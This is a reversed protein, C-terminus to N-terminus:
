KWVLGHCESKPDLLYPSPKSQDREYEMIEEQWQKRLDKHLTSNVENFAGVQKDREQISILLRRSLTDGAM